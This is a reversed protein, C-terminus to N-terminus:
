TSICRSIEGSVPSPRRSSRRSGLQQERIEHLRMDTLAQLVHRCDDGHSHSMAKLLRMCEQLQEHGHNAIGEDASATSVLHIIGAQLLNFIFAPSVRELSGIIQEYSKILKVISDAAAMCLSLSTSPGAKRHDLELGRAIFPRHLIITCTFFRQECRDTGRALSSNPASVLRVDIVHPLDTSANGSSYIVGLVPPYDAEWSQLLLDLRILGADQDKRTQGTLHM